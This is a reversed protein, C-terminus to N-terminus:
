ASFYNLTRLVIYKCIAAYAQLSGSMSTLSIIDGNKLAPSTGPVVQLLNSALFEHENQRSLRIM